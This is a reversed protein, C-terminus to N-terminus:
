PAVRTVVLPEGNGPNGTGITVGTRDARFVIRVPGQLPQASVRQVRYLGLDIVANPSKVSGRVLHLSIQTGGPKGEFINTAECPLSCGQPLFPVVGGAITTIGVDVLLKKDSVAESWPEALISVQDQMRVPASACGAVLLVIVSAVRKM